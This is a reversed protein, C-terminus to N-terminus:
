SVLPEPDLRRPGEHHALDGMEQEDQRRLRDLDKAGLHRVQPESGQPEEHVVRRNGQRLSYCVIWTNVVVDACLYIVLPM